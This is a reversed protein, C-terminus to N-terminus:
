LGFQVALERAKTQLDLLSLGDNYIVVDAAARRKARPSQAAIIAQVAQATLGSRQMVREIQTEPRCDVVLVKDLQAPWRRSEVLLPIDFVIVHKGAEEAIKVAAWTANGVLPHVISNLKAMAEDFAVDLESLAKHLAEPM